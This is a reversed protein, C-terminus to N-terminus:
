ENKFNIVGFKSSHPTHLDIFDFSLKGHEKLTDYMKKSNTDSTIYYDVSECQAQALLKVDNQIMIRHDVQLVGKTKAEFLIQACVGTKIAHFANFPCLLINRLPLHDITDKVCFEAVAITSMRIIFDNELFYKFYAVANEHLENTSDLLRIFFGTDGFVSKNNDAM